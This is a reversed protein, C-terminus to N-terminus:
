IEDEDDESEPPTEKNETLLQQADGKKVGVIYIVVAFVLILALIIFIISM